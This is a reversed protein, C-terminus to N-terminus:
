LQDLGFRGGMIEAPQDYLFFGSVAALLVGFFALGAAWSKPNTIPESNKKTLFLDVILLAFASAIILLEPILIQFSFNM